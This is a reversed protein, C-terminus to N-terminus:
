PCLAPPRGGVPVGTPESRARLLIVQARYWGGGLPRGSCGTPCYRLAGTAQSASAAEGVYVAGELYLDQSSASEVVLRFPAERRAGGGEAVVRAEWTGAERAPIALTPQKSTYRETGPLGHALAKAEPFGAEPALLAGSPEM